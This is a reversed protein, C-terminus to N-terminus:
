YIRSVKRSMFGFMLSIQHMSGSFDKEDPGFVLSSYMYKIRTYVQYIYSRRLYYQNGSPKSFFNFGLGVSYSVKSTFNIDELYQYAVIDDYVPSIDMISLGALPTISYAPSSFLSYGLFVQPVLLTASFDKEWLDPAVGIDKKLVSASVSLSMDLIFRKYFLDFNIGIGGPNTLSSSIEGGLPNFSGSLGYGLAFDSIKFKYQIIKKVFPGYASYPYNFIFSDSTNNLKEQLDAELPFDALCFGLLLELFDKQEHDAALSHIKNKLFDYNDLSLRKLNDLLKDDFRALTPGARVFSGSNYKLGTTASEEMIMGYDGTWFLILWNEIIDFAQHNEDEIESKLYDNIRRVKEIDGAIISLYILRRAKSITENKSDPINKIELLISDYQGKIAPTCLLLIFLILGKKVMIM